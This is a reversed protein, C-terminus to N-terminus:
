STAASTGGSLANPRMDETIARVLQGLLALPLRRLQAETVPLAKGKDDTIDWGTLTDLLLAILSQGVRQEQALSELRDETEPTIGGPRYTVTLTDEGVTLTLTRTDRMLESLRIPM